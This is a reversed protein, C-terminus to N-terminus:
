AACGGLTRTTPMLGFSPWWLARYRGCRRARGPAAARREARGDTCADPLTPACWSVPCALTFVVLKDVAFTDGTYRVQHIPAAFEAQTGLEGAETPINGGEGDADAMAAITCPPPVSLRFVARYFGREFLDVNAFDTLHLALRVHCEM